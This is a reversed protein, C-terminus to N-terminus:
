DGACLDRLPGLWPEYNRWRGTSTKYIPQRVQWHSATLVPRVNSEPRLCADNWALGCFALLDRITAEPDTVMRDYDLDFIAGSPLTEVWHRMLRQYERYAFVLDSKDHAYAPPTLFSQMYISLCNDIPHRHCHVIRANPFLANILGLFRYNAPQKDTVHPRGSDIRLLLTEYAEILAECSSRHLQGNWIAEGSHKLWFDLEGGAAVDPHASLVQEVLTTGSRMRGVIFIPRRSASAPLQRADSAGEPFLHIWRDIEEVYQRRDFRRGFRDREIEHARDFYRMAEEFRGLDDFAKGLAYSLLRGANADTAEQEFSVMRTILDLDSGDVRKALVLDAYPAPNAPDSEIAIRLHQQAMGLEGAKQYVYGLLAHAAQHDPDSRLAMVLHEEAVKLDSDGYIEARAAAVLGRPTGPELSFARRFAQAAESHDGVVVLLSGLSLWSDILRPDLDLAARYQQIAERPRDLNHLSNAL